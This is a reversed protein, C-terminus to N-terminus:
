RALRELEAQTGVAARRRPDELYGVLTALAQEPAGALQDAPFLLDAPVLKANLRALASRRV